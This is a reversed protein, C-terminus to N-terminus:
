ESACASIAGSLARARTRVLRPFTCSAYMYIYTHITPERAPLYLYILSYILVNQESHLARDIKLAMSLINAAACISFNISLHQVRSLNIAIALFIYSIVPTNNSSYHSRHYTKGNKKSAFACACLLCTDSLFLQLKGNCASYRHFSIKERRRSRFLVAIFM